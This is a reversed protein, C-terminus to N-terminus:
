GRRASAATSASPLSQQAFLPVPHELAEEIRKDLDEPAIWHKSQALLWQRREQSAVDLVDNRVQHRKLRVAKAEM